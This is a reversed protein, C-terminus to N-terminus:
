VIRAEASVNLVTNEIRQLAVPLPQRRAPDVWRRGTRGWGRGAGGGRRAGGRGSRGTAHGPKPNSLDKIENRWRGFFSWSLTKSKSCPLLSPQRRAPDVWRRGTRVLGAGGQQEATRRGSTVPGYHTRTKSEVILERVHRAHFSNVSVFLRRYM